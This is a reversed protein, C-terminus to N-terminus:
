KHFNRTLINGTEIDVAYQSGDWNIVLIDGNDSEVINIFPSNEYLYDQKSIQWIINGNLGVCYVNENFIVDPPINLLVLVRNQSVICKTIPFPFKVEENLLLKNGEIKM